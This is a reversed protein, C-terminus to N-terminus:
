DRPRGNRPGGGRDPRHLNEVIDGIVKEENHAPVLVLFRSQPAHDEYDKVGRGFGFLSLIMQYVMMLTLWGGAVAAMVRLAALFTEM